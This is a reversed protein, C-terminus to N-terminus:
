VTAKLKLQRLKNSKKEQCDLFTNQSTTFQIELEDLYEDDTRALSIPVLSNIFTDNNNRENFAISAIIDKNHLKPNGPPIPVTLIVNQEMIYKLFLVFCDWSQNRIDLRQNISESTYWHHRFDFLFAYLTNKNTLDGPSSLYYTGLMRLITRIIKPYFLSNYPSSFKVLAVVIAQSLERGIPLLDSLDITVTNNASDKIKAILGTKTDDQQVSIM